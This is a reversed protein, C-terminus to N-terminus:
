SGSAHIWELTVTLSGKGSGEVLLGTLKGSKLAIEIGLEVTTKDPAAKVLAGRVADSMGELIKTIEAFDFRDGFATKTAGADLKTARVLAVTGNPLTVEVIETEVPWGGM